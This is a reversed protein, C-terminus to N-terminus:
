QKILMSPVDDSEPNLVYSVLHVSRFTSNHGVSNRWVFEVYFVDGAEGHWALGGGGEDGRWGGISWPGRRGEGRPM